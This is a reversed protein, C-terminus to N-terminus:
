ASAAQKFLLLRLNLLPTRLMNVFCLELCHRSSQLRPHKGPQKKPIFDTMTNKDRAQFSDTIRGLYSIPIVSRYILYVDHVYQTNCHYGTWSYWDLDDWSKPERM